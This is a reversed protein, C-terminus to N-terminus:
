ASGLGEVPQIAPYPPLAQRGLGELEDSPPDESCLADDPNLEDCMEVVHRRLVDGLAAAENALTNQPSPLWHLICLWVHDHPAPQWAIRRRIPELRLPM